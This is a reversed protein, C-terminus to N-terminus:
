NPHTQGAHEDRLLRRVTDWGLIEACTFFATVSVGLIGHLNVNQGTLLLNPLPTRPTLLTHMPRTCDKRIGYASGEVFNLWSHYTLPTSTYIADISDRLGSIHAAARDICREAWRRKLQEYADGRQGSPLDKWPMTESWPMPTLLDIAPAYRGGDKPVYYSVMVAKPHAEGPAYHWLDVATDHLYLNRNRYPLRGPKLRLNATFM